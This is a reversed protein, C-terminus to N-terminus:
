IEDKKMERMHHMALQLKERRGPWMALITGA